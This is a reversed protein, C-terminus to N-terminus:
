NLRYFLDERFRGAAIEKELDRNTAALIRVDATVPRTAGLPEYVKEQLVRLLKVQVRPSVEAIEDLLLTGGKAAKLKGPKDRRADTFAGAVYGFLESELLTEPIAACNVVVLPKSRRPSLDHIARAFVEKGTGSEGTILITSSSEAIQPLIQLISNMRDSRTLIDGYSYRGEAQQRLQEVLSLDRFTEVGGIFNGGRDRLLATSISIPVREGDSRVIHIPSRVVPKGTTLTEKLACNAECIDARLVECCRKGIAEERKVGTIEEAARNFSTIRYREDVTFVGDTISDLIIATDEPGFPSSGQSWIDRSNM